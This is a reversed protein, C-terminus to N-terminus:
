RHYPPKESASKITDPILPILVAPDDRCLSQLKIVQHDIADFAKRQFCKLILQKMVCCVRALNEYLNQAFKLCIELFSASSFAFSHM